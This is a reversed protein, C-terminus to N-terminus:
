WEERDLSAWQLRDLVPDLSSEDESTYIRNLHHTTLVDDHSELYKALAVQYLESRSMGLRKAVRKAAAFLGDPISIATKMNM